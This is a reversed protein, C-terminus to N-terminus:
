FFIQSTLPFEQNIQCSIVWMGTPECVEFESGKSNPKCLEELDVPESLNIHFEDELADVNVQQEM